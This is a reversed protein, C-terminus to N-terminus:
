PYVTGAADEIEKRCKKLKELIEVLEMAESLMKSAPEHVHDFVADKAAEFEAAEDSSFRSQNATEIEKLERRCRELVLRQPTSVLSSLRGAELDLEKIETLVWDRISRHVLYAHHYLTRALDRDRERALDNFDNTTM